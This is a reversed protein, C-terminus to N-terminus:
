QTQMFRGLGQPRSPGPFINEQLAHTGVGPGQLGPLQKHRQVARIKVPM